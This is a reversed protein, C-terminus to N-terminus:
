KEVWKVLLQALACGLSGCIVAPTACFILAVPWMSACGGTYPVFYENYLLISLIAFVPVCVVLAFGLRKQKLLLGCVIGFVTSVLTAHNLLYM